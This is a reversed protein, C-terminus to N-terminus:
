SSIKSISDILFWISGCLFINLRGVAPVIPGVDDNGNDSVLAEGGKEVFGWGDFKGVGLSELFGIAGANRVVPVLCKFSGGM